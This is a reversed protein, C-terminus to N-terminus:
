LWTLEACTVDSGPSSPWRLGPRWLEVQASRALDFVRVREADTLHTLDYDASRLIKALSEDHDM